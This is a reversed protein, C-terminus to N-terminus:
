RAGFRLGTGAPIPLRVTKRTVRDAVSLEINWQDRGIRRMDTIRGSYKAGGSTVTILDGIAADEGLALDLSATFDRGPLPTKAPTPAKTAPAARSADSEGYNVTSSGTFRHYERFESYNRAQVGESPLMILETSHPAVFEGDGIRERAYTTTEVSRGLRTEVHVEMKQLDLNAEDLWLRGSLAAPASGEPTSMAYGSRVAPVHFALEIHGGSTRPPDFMAANRVFITRLHLAYSGDSVMGHAPLLETISREFRESGPWAYLEEGGSFVVELRLRDTLQFAGRSSRRESREITVRCTYDPLQTV